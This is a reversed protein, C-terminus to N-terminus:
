AVSREWAQLYRVWLESYDDPHAVVQSLKCLELVTHMLESWTVSLNAGDFVLNRTVVKVLDNYVSDRTEARLVKDYSSLVALYSYVDTYSRNESNSIVTLSQALESYKQSYKDTFERYEATSIENDALKDKLNNQRTEIQTMQKKILSIESKNTTTLQKLFIDFSDKLRILTEDAIRIRSLESLLYDDVTVENLSKTTCTSKGKKRDFVSSCTYYVYRGQKKQEACM